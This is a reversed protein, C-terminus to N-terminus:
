RSWSSSLDMHNRKRKWWEIQTNILDNVRLKEGENQTANLISCTKHESIEFAIFSIFTAIISGM